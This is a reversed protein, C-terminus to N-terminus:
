PIVVLKQQYLADGGRVQLLYLGAPVADPLLVASGQRAPVTWRRVIRGSLDLLTAPRVALAAPMEITIAARAPNPYLGLPQVAVASRTALGMYTPDAAGDVTLCTLGFPAVQRSFSTFGGSVLLRGDTQLLM